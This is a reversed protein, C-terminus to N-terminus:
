WRACGLKVRPMPGLILRYFYTPFGFLHRVADFILAFGHFGCFLCAVFEYFTIFPPNLILCHDAIAEHAMNHATRVTRKLTPVSLSLEYSVQTFLFSIALTKKCSKKFSYHILHQFM